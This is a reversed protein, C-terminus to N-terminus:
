TRSRKQPNGPDAPQMKDYYSDILRFVVDRDEEPLSEIKRYYDRMPTEGKKAGEGVILWSPNVGLLHSARFGIEALDRPRSDGTEWKAVTSQDQNLRQALDKQSWDMDERAEALREGFTMAANHVLRM